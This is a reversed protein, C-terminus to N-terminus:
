KFGYQIKNDDIIEQKMEYPITDDDIELIELQYYYGYGPKEDYIGANILDQSMWGGFHNKEAVLYKKPTPEINTAAHATLTTMEYTKTSSYVPAAGAVILLAMLGAATKKWFQKKM